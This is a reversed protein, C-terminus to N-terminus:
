KRFYVENNEFDVTAQGLRILELLSLFSWVVDAKSFGEDLLQDLKVPKKSLRKIVLGMENKLSRRPAALLRVDETPQAKELLRALAKSLDNVNLDKLEYSPELTEYNAGISRFFLKERTEHGIQLSELASEYLYMEPSPLELPEEEEEEHLPPLLLAAKRELLYSLAFLAASASDFEEEARESLYFYYAECLPFLPIENLDIKRLRVSHLLTSLPGSFTPCELTISPLISSGLIGSQDESVKISLSMPLKKKSAGLLNSSSFSLKASEERLWKPVAGM